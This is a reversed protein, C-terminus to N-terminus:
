ILQTQTNNNRDKGKNYWAEFEELLLSSKIYLRPYWQTKQKQEVMLKSYNRRAEKEASM